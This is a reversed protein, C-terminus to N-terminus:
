EILEASRELLALEKEEFARDDVSLILIAGRLSVLENLVEVFRLIRAFDNNIMLYELGDLLVVVKPSAALYDKVLATLSSLNHPDMYNAGLTTSLWILRVSELRSRSVHDPHQRTIYLGRHGESVLRTFRELARQPKREKVIYTRGDQLGTDKGFVLARFIEDEGLMALAGVTWWMAPWLPWGIRAM